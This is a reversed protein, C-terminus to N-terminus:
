TFKHPIFDTSLSLYWLSDMAAEEMEADSGEDVSNQEPGQTECYLSPRTLTELHYPHVVQEKWDM